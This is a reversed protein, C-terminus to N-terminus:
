SGTESFGWFDQLVQATQGSNWKLGHSRSHTPITQQENTQEKENRKGEKRYMVMKMLITDSRQETGIVLSCSLKKEHDALRPAYNVSQVFNGDIDQEFLSLNALGALWTGGVEVWLRLNSQTVKRYNSSTQIVRQGVTWVMEGPEQPLPKDPDDSSYVVCSYTQAEDELSYFLINTFISSKAMM